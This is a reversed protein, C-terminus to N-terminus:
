KVRKSKSIRISQSNYLNHPEKNHLKRQEGTRGEEIRINGRELIGGIYEAILTLSLIECGYLVIPLILPEIIKISLNKFLLRYSLLNQVSFCCANGSKLRSKIKEYIWNENTVTTGFYKLNAVNGFSRNAIKISRNQRRSM